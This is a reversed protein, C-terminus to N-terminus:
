EVAEWNDPYVAPTYVNSGVKSRYLVDDWWGCEGEAFAETVTITEPIIRYGDKYPLDAWLTPANDPNNEKTDWLDVAAKKLIGKWNIRTGHKILPIEAEPQRNEYTMREFLEPAISATKDDVLNRGAVIVFHARAALARNM